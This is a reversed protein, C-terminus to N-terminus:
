AGTADAKQAVKKHLAAMYQTAASADTLVTALWILPMIYLAISVAAVIILYDAFAARVSPVAMTLFIFYALALAVIGILLISIAILVRSTQLPRISQRPNPSFRQAADRLRGVDSRMSALGYLWVTLLGILLLGAHSAAIGSNIQPGFGPRESVFAIAESVVGCVVMLAVMWNTLRAYGRPPVGTKFPGTNSSQEVTSAARQWALATEAFLLALRCLSYCVGILLVAVSWAAASKRLGDLGKVLPSSDFFGFWVLGVAALAALILFWQAFIPTASKAPAIPTRREGLGFEVGRTRREVSRAIGTMKKFLRCVDELSLGLFFLFVGNAAADFAAAFARTQEITDEQISMMEGVSHIVTFGGMVCFPLIYPLSSARKTSDTELPGACRWQLWTAHRDFDRAVRIMARLTVFMVVGFLMSVGGMAVAAFYSVASLNALVSFSVCQRAVVFVVTAVLLVTFSGYEGPQPCPGLPPLAVPEPVSVAVPAIESVQTSEPGPASEPAAGDIPALPAADRAAPAQAEPQPAPVVPPFNEGCQGCVIRGGRNPSPNHITVNCFPCAVSTTM